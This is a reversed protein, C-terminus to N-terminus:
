KGRYTHPGGPYDYKKSSQGAYQKALGETLSIFAALSGSECDFKTSWTGSKLKNELPQGARLMAVSAAFFDGVHQLEASRAFREVNRPLGSKISVTMDIM